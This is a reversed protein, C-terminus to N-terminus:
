FSKVDDREEISWLKELQYYKRTDPHMVHVIADGFDLLAWQGQDIGEVGLVEHHEHKIRELVKSALSKVQRDSQGTAIIMTDTFSTLKEVDLVTIDYAKMDNLTDVIIRTLEDLQM